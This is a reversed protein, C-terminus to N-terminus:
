VLMVLISWLMTSAACSRPAEVVLVSNRTSMGMLMGPMLVPMVITNTGATDVKTMLRISPPPELRSM